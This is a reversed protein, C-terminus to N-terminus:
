SSPSCARCVSDDEFAFRLLFELTMELDVVSLAFVNFPSCTYRCPLCPCNETHAEPIASSQESGLPTPGM